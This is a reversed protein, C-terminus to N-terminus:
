LTSASICTQDPGDTGGCHLDLQVLQAIRRWTTDLEVYKM